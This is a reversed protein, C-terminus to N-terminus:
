SSQAAMKEIANEWDAKKPVQQQFNRQPQHYQQQYPPQQQQQPRYYQQQSLNPYQIPGQKQM